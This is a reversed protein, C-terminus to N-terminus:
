ETQICDPMDNRGLLWEYSQKMQVAVQRWSYKRAMLTRGGEGMASLEAKSLRLAGNLCQMLEAHGLDIWWGCDHDVLEKWPAGKTTIVPLGFALAEAIAIGFNESHTPLVFLDANALAAERESGSLMGTFTVRDSLQYNVAESKMRNSYGDLDPGALILHWEQFHHHIERWARLLESVGKKPHIRSLFLLWRKGALEPYKLELDQRDAKAERDPIEVGNPIIAIPQHLGLKRLSRAEMESTAHFLAASRLNGREFLNWAVFKKIRSRGLSWDELMGRPSIVLPIGSSIAARRAYLNPFMWLGHNHVINAKRSAKRVRRNLAPSWGRTQTTFYNGTVSTLEYGAGETQPGLQKYNLTLLACAVGEKTLAEALRPVTVAPGGVGRNINAIVQCVRLM